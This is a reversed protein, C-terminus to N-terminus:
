LTLGSAAGFDTLSEQTTLCIRGFVAFTIGLRRHSSADVSFNLGEAGLGTGVTKAVINAVVVADFGPSAVVVGSDHHHRIAFAVETPFHWHEAISAGILTHDFGFTRREAETYTAGLERALGILESADVKLYRAVLLKGIDHLLAGIDAVWPINLEPREERIARVAFQSAVSHLWLDHEGLGYAPAATILRRLQGQLVLDLLRLTGVRVMAERVDQTPSAAYGASNALRLLSAVLAQDREIVGALRGFSEEEDRRLMAILRRATAPLPDLHTIGRM